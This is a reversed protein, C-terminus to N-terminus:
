FSTQNPACSYDWTSQGLHLEMTFRINLGTTESDPEYNIISRVQKLILCFFSSHFTLPFTHTKGPLAVEVWCIHPHGPPTFPPQPEALSCLQTEKVCNWPIQPLLIPQCKRKGFIKKLVSYIGSNQRGELKSISRCAAIKFSSFSVMRRRRILHQM